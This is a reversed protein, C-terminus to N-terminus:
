STMKLSSTMRLEGMSSHGSHSVSMQKKEVPKGSSLASAYAVSRLGKITFSTEMCRTRMSRRM